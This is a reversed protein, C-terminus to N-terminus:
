VANQRNKKEKTRLASQMVFALLCSYYSINLCLMLSIYQLLMCLWFIQDVKNSHLDFNSVFFIISKHMALCHAVIRNCKKNVITIERRRFHRQYEQAELFIRIWGAHLVDDQVAFIVLTFTEKLLNRQVQRKQLLRQVHYKIEIDTACLLVPRLKEVERDTSCHCGLELQLGTETFCWM